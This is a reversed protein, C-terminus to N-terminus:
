KNVALYITNMFLTHSCSTKALCERRCVPAAPQFTASNADVQTCTTMEDGILEFGSNCTYTATDGVFNGTFIVMGNVIDIPDPCQVVPDSGLATSCYEHLYNLQHVSFSCM